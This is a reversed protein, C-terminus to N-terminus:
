LWFNYPFQNVIDLRFSLIPFHPTWTTLVRTQLVPLFTVKSKQSDECFSRNRMPPNAWMWWLKYTSQSINMWYVTSIALFDIQYKLTLKVALSQHMILAARHINTRLSLDCYPRIAWGISRQTFHAIKLGNKSTTYNYHLHEIVRSWLRKLVLSVILM